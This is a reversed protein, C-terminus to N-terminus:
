PEQAPEGVDHYGSSLGFGHFRIKQVIVRCAAGAQRAGVDAGRCFCRRGYHARFETGDMELLGFSLTCGMSRDHGWNARGLVQPLDAIAFGFGGAFFGWALLYLAARNNQWRLYACFVLFLGVCGAWNDGRPPTMHLHCVGVLVFFAILWGAALFGICAAQPRSRPVFLSTLGAALLAGLAAVWDADKLWWARNAHHLWQNAELKGTLGTFDSLQWIIWLIMLPPCWSELTESSETLAHALIGAGLGAWMGGIIFLCTYGYYVDKFSTHCTYGVIKAYSMQGGFAWGLAGLFALTV